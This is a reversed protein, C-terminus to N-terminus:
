GLVFLFDVELVEAVDDKLEQFVLLHPRVKHLNQGDDQMKCRLFCPPQDGFHLSLRSALHGELLFNVRVGAKSAKNIATMKVLSIYWSMQKIVFLREIVM